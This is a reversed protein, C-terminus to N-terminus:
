YNGPKNIDKTDEIALTAANASITNLAFLCMMFCFTSLLRKIAKM